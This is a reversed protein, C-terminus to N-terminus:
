CTQGDSARALLLLAAGPPRERGLKPFAPAFTPSRSGAVPIAVVTALVVRRLTSHLVAAAV